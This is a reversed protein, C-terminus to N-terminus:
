DECTFCGHEAAGQAEWQHSPERQSSVRWRVHLSNPGFHQVGAAAVQDEQVFTPSKSWKNRSLTLGRRDATARLRSALLWLEKPLKLTCAAISSSDLFNCCEELEDHPCANRLVLLYLHQSSNKFIMKTIGSWDVETQLRSVLLQFGFLKSRAHEYVKSNM